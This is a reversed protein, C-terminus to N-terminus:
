ILFLSVILFLSNSFYICDVNSVYHEIINFAKSSYYMSLLDPISYPEFFTILHETSTLSLSSEVITVDTSHNVESEQLTIGSVECAIDVDKLLVHEIGSLLFTALLIFALIRFNFKM